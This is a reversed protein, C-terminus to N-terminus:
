VNTIMGDNNKVVKENIFTKSLLDFYMCVYMCVYMLMFLKNQLCFLKRFLYTYEAEFLEWFLDKM